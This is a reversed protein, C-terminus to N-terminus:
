RRGGTNWDADLVDVTSRRGSRDGSVVVISNGHIVVVKGVVGSRWLDAKDVSRAV